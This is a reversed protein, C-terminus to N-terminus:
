DDFRRIWDLTARRRDLRRPADILHIGPGAPYDEFRAPRLGANVARYAAPVDDKERDGLQPLRGARILVGGDYPMATPPEVGRASAAEDLARRVADTGGLRDIVPDGLVTLWNVSQYRGPKPQVNFVARDLGPYRERWEWAAGGRQHAMGIEDVLSLGATGYQPRLATAWRLMRDVCDDADGLAASPPMSVSIYSLWSRRPEEEQLLTEAQWRPPDDQQLLALSMMRRPDEILPALTRRADDPFADRIRRPRSDDTSMWQSFAGRAFGHVETMVELAARRTEARHGDPMQLQVTVALRQLPRGTQPAPITLEDLRALGGADDLATGHVSRM